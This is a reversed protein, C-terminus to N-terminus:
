NWFAFAGSSGPSEVTM